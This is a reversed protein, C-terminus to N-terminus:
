LQKGHVQSERAAHMVIKGQKISRAQKTQISPDQGWISLSVLRPQWEVEYITLLRRRM